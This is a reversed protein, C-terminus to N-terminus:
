FRLIQHPTSTSIEYAVVTADGVVEYQTQNSPSDRDEM